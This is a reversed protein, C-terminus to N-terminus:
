ILKNESSLAWLKHGPTKIKQRDAEKSWPSIKMKIPKEDVNARIVFDRFQSAYPSNAIIRANQIVTARMPSTKPLFHLMGMWANVEESTFTFDGIKYTKNQPKQSKKNYFHPLHYGDIIILNDESPFKQNQQGIIEKFNGTIFDKISRNIEREDTHVYDGWTKWYSLISVPYEAGREKIFKILKPIFMTVKEINKDNIEGFRGFIFDNLQSNGNEMREEYDPFYDKILDCHPVNANAVYLIGDDLDHIFTDFGNVCYITDPDAYFNYLNESDSSQSSSSELWKQFNM